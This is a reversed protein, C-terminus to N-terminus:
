LAYKQAAADPSSSAREVTTVLVGILIRRQEKPVISVPRLRLRSAAAHLQYCSRKKLSLRAASDLGWLGLYRVVSGSKVLDTEPLSDTWARLGAKFQMRIM